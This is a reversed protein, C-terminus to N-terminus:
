AAEVNPESSQGGSGRQYESLLHIMQLPPCLISAKSPVVVLRSLHAMSDGRFWQLEKTRILLHLQNIVRRDKRVHRALM